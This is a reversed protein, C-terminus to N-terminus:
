RNKNIREIIEELKKMQENMKITQQITSTDLGYSSPTYSSSSSSTPMSSFDMKVEMEASNESIEIRKGTVDSAEFLEGMLGYSKVDITEFSGNMTVDVSRSGYKPKLSHHLKRHTQWNYGAYIFFKSDTSLSMIGSDGAEVYTSQIGKKNKYIVLADHESDNVIEYNNMLSYLSSLSTGGNSTVEPELTLLSDPTYLPHDRSVWTLLFTQYDVLDVQSLTLNNQVSEPLQFNDFDYSSSYSSGRDSCKYTIFIIKVIILIVWFVYRGSNDGSSSSQGRGSSYGGGGGSGEFARRNNVILNHLEPACRLVAANGLAQGLFSRHRSYQFHHTFNIVARALDDKLFGLHLDLSEVLHFYSVNELYSYDRPNFQRDGETLANVREFFAKYSYLVKKLAFQADPGNMYEFFSASNDLSKFRNEKILQGSAKNVSYALYPSVFAKFREKQEDSEFNPHVIDKQFWPLEHQNLLTNWTTSEHILVHLDLDGTNLLQDFTDNIDNKTIERGNIELYDKDSLQLELLLAKKAKRLSNHDLQDAAIELQNLLLLPSQYAQYTSLTRLHNKSSSFIVVGM